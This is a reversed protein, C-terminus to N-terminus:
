LIDSIRTPQVKIVGTNTVLRYPYSLTIYLNYIGLDGAFSVDAFCDIIAKNADLQIDFSNGSQQVANISSCEFNIGEGIMDLEAMLFESGKIEGGGVNRLEVELNILAQGPTTSTATKKVSATIPAFENEFGLRQGSIVEQQPCSVQRAGFSAVCLQTNFNSSYPFDFEAIFQTTAGTEAGRYDIRGLNEIKGNPSYSKIQFERTQPDQIDSYEIIAPELFIPINIPDFGEYPTVDRLNLTGTIEKPNHNIFELAVIFPGRIERPPSNPLFSMSIGRGVSLQTKSKSFTPIKVCGVLLIMLLLILILKKM